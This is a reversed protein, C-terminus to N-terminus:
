WIQVRESSDRWMGDSPQIGFTDFFTDLNV